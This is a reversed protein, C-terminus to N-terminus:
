WIWEVGGHFGHYLAHAQTLVTTNNINSQDVNGGATALSNLYMVQYGGRVSWSHFIDAEIPVGGEAAFAVQNGEALVDFDAPPDAGSGPDPFDGIHRFKFRNNYIGTKAEGGIRLGQRLCLWGDGGFQFGVLDNESDWTRRSNVVLGAMFAEADFQLTDTMRLYRAGMMWTGSVRPNNGVWYRRYSIETSQLDAQYNLSYVEGQDIGDIPTIGFDSFISVLSFPTNPPNNSAETSSVRDIFGFDYLGMYTVELLALAGIDYRGAIRWGPDYEDSSNNPDLVQPSDTAATVAGFAALGDFLEEGVMFVVDASIDFYHPGCQEPCSYGGFDVAMPDGYGGQCSGGYCGYGGQGMGGPGSQCYGTQVVIPNGAVDMFAGGKAAAPGGALLAGPFPPMGPAAQGSGQQYIAQSLPGQAIVSGAAFAVVTLCIALRFVSQYRTISSIM